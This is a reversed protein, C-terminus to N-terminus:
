TQQVPLYSFSFFFTIRRKFQSIWILCWPSATFLSGPTAMKLCAGNPSLNRKLLHLYTWCYQCKTETPHLDLLLDSSNMFPFLRGKRAGAKSRWRVHHIYLGVDRRGGDWRLRWQSTAAEWTPHLFPLCARLNGEGLWAMRCPDCFNHWKIRWGGHCTAPRHCHAYVFYM